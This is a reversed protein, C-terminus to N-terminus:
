WEQRWPPHMEQQLMQWNQIALMAFLLATFKDGIHPLFPILEGGSATVFCHIALVAALIISIWLAARRGQNGPMIGDLFDRSIQGGDLPFIPLLNVLGWFLNIWLLFGAADLVLPALTIPGGLEMETPIGFLDLAKVLMCRLNDKGSFALAMFMVALLTFGALPGAFSVLIRQWRNRLYRHPMALGGFGYLVIDAGVGFLRFTFVHGLEHILISGFLCAVWVAFLELSLSIFSFGTIGAILWFWPNVRVEVGFIRWTLDYPTPAPEQLFM